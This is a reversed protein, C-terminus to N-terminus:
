VNGIEGNRIFIEVRWCLSWIIGSFFWPNNLNTIRLKLKLCWTEFHLQLGEQSCDTDVLQKRWWWTEHCQIFWVLFVTLIIEPLQSQNCPSRNILVFLFLSCLSSKTLIFSCIEKEERSTNEDCWHFSCKNYPFGNGNTRTLRGNRDPAVTCLETINSKFKKCSVNTLPLSYVFCIIPGVGFGSQGKSELWITRWLLM